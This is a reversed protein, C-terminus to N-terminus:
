TFSISCANPLCPVGFFLFTSGIASEEVADVAAVPVAPSPGAAVSAAGPLATDIDAVGTAGVDILPGVSFLAFPVVLAGDDVVM